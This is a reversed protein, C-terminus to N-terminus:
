QRKGRVRIAEVLSVVWLGFLGFVSTLSLGISLPLLAALIGRLRAEIKAWRTAALLLLITILHDCAYQKFTTSYELYEFHLSFVVTSIVAFWGPVLRWVLRAFLWVSILGCLLPVLRLSLDSPEFMVLALKSLLLFLPPALQNDDLHQLAQGLSKFLLNCALM